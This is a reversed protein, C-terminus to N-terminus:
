AIVLAQDTEHTNVSTHLHGGHPVACVRLDHVWMCVSTKKSSCTQLCSQDVLLEGGVPTTCQLV